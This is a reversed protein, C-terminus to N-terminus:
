CRSFIQYPDSLPSVSTILLFSVTRCLMAFLELIMSTVEVDKRELPSRSPSRTLYYTNAGNSQLVASRKPVVCRFTTSTTEIGPLVLSSM